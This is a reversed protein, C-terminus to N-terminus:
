LSLKYLCYCLIVIWSIAFLRPIAKYHILFPILSKWIMDNKKLITDFYGCWVPPYDDYNFNNDKIFKNWKSLIFAIAKESEWFSHRIIISIFIGIVSIVISVVIDKSFISCFGALLLGQLLIFWMMRDNVLKTENDLLKRIERDFNQKKIDEM